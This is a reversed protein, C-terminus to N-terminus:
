ISILLNPAIQNQFSARILRRRDRFLLTSESKLYQWLASIQYGCQPQSLRPCIREFHRDIFHRWNESDLNSPNSYWHNVSSLSFPSSEQIHIGPSNREHLTPIKYRLSPVMVDYGHLKWLAIKATVREWYCGWNITTITTLTEAPSRSPHCEPLAAKWWSWLSRLWDATKGMPPYEKGDKEVKPTCSCRESEDISDMVMPVHSGCGWWTSKEAFSILVLYPSNSPPGRVAPQVPPKRACTSRLNNVRSLVPIQLPSLPPSSTSKSCIFVPYLIPLPNISLYQVYPSVLRRSM